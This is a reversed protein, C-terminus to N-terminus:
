DEGDLNPINALWKSWLSAWNRSASWAFIITYCLCQNEQVNGEMGKIVGERAESSQAHAEHPTEEGLRRQKGLDRGRWAAGKGRDRWISKGIWHQSKTSCINM